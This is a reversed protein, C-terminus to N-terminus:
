KILAKRSESWEMFEELSKCSIADLELKHMNKVLNLDEIGANYSLTLAQNLDTVNIAHSEYETIGVKCLPDAWRKTPCDKLPLKCRVCKIIEAHVNLSVECEGYGSDLCTNKDSPINNGCKTCHNKVEERIENHNM